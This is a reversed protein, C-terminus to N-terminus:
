RAGGGTLRDALRGVTLGQVVISFVVVLYTVVLIAERAPLSEPISLALAVSIGGRLGGWTLIRVVGPTFSRRARLAAVTTGVSLFRAVLVLPIAVLGAAVTWPEAELVLVELGILVFLMVNLVEDVVEWFDDLRRRSAESMALRRGSNGVLLGAVVVALPGSSHLALAATYLGTALALTVLIEVHHDDVSRLLLYAVWGGLGGLVVAGGVERLLLLSTGEVSLEGGHGGGGAAWALVVGFVVVGIGDNFLSEGTIKTELSKPAGTRKLIGLVAIPDTPAILAGFLLADQFRLPVGVLQALGYGAAGVLATTALVGVTALLGVVRRQGGLDGLDVHLAGAFLLFALMCDLLAERFRLRELLEVARDEVGLGVADGAHLLFSVGLALVMVGITPPLRLLRHNLWALLASVVLVGAFLPFLEM